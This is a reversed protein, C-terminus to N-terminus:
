KLQGVYEPIRPYHEYFISSFHSKGNRHCLNRNDHALFVLNKIDYCNFLTLDDDNQTSIKLPIPWSFNNVEIQSPRKPLSSLHQNLSNNRLLHTPAPPSEHQSIKIHAKEHSHDHKKSIIPNPPELIDRYSLPVETPPSVPEDPESQNRM